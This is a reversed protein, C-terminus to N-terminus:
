GNFDKIYISLIESTRFTPYWLFVPVYCRFTAFNGKNVCITQFVRGERTCMKDCFVRGERPCAKLVRGERTCFNTFVM